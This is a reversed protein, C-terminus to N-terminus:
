LVGLSWFVSSEFPANNQLAGDLLFDMGKVTRLSKV